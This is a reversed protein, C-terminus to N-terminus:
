VTATRCTIAMQSDPTTVCYISPLARPVGLTEEWLCKLETKSFTHQGFVAAPLNRQGDYTHPGWKKTNQTNENYSLEQLALVIDQELM